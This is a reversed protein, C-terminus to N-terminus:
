SSEGCFGVAASILGEELLYVRRVTVPDSAGEPDPSDCMEPPAIAVSGNTDLAGLFSGCLINALEGVASAAQAPSIEAAYGGLLNAALVAATPRPVSVSLKGRRSGSFSVAATYCPQDPLCEEFDLVTTFFLTELLRVAVADITRGFGGAEGNSTAKLM